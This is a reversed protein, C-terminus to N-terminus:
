FQTSLYRSVRGLCARLREVARMGLHRVADESRQMDAAVRALSEGNLHVRTVVTRSDTPLRAICSMLAAVADQRRMVGSPTRRDPLCQELLPDYASEGERQRVERSADRKKSRWHRALDIFKHRLITTAWRYFSDEDTYQFGGIGKVMDIYGEQLVEEADIKGQWETRTKRKVFSLMRGRYIWLLREIAEGDGGAARQCLLAVQEPEIKNPNVEDSMARAM